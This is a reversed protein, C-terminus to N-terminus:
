VRVLRPRSRHPVSAIKQPVSAISKLKLNLRLRQGSLKEYFEVHANLNPLHCAEIYKQLTWDPDAVFDFEPVNVEKDDRINRGDEKVFRVGITQYAAIYSLMEKEVEGVTTAKWRM